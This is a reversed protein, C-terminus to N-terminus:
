GEEMRKKIEAGQALAEQTIEHYDKPRTHNIRGYMDVFELAEEYM